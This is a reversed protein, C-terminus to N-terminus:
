VTTPPPLADAVKHVLDDLNEVMYVLLNKGRQVWRTEQSFVQWCLSVIDDLMLGLPLFNEFFTSFWVISFVITAREIDGPSADKEEDVGRFNRYGAEGTSAFSFATFFGL